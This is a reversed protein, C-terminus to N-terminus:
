ADYVLSEVSNGNLKYALVTGRPARLRALERRLLALGRETEYLELEIECYEVQQRGATDPVSLQTGGGTVEGFEGADLAEQLPDEFREGRELPEVRGPIRVCVSLVNPRQRRIAVLPDSPTSKGLLLNLPRLFEKLLEKLFDM